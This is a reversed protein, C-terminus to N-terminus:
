NLFRAPGCGRCAARRLALHRKSLQFPGIDELDHPFYLSVLRPCCLNKSEVALCQVALKLVVPPLPEYRVLYRSYYISLPAIQGTSAPCSCGRGGGTAQRGKRRRM